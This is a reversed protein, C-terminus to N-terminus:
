QEPRSVTSVLAGGYLRLLLYGPTGANRFRGHRLERMTSWYLGRSLIKLLPINLGTASGIHRLFRGPPAIDPDDVQVSQSLIAKETATPHDNGLMKRWTKYDDIAQDRLGNRAMICFRQAIAQREQGASLVADNTVDPLYEALSLDDRLRTFMRVRYQQWIRARDRHDHQATANGRAGEHLRLAFTPENMCGGSFRRALRLLMEHDQARIFSEDFPGVDEYCRRSVLMGQMMSHMSEMTRVFFNKGTYGPLKRKPRKHIEQDSFPGSFVHQPSYSFDHEPHAALFELHSALAHPLAVDDDDFIWIYDSAVQGLAHNLASSKGGNAKYLYRIRDGYGHVIEATNDTSGDDVVVIEDPPRTQELLSDLAQEIYEARNYTALVVSVTLRSETM